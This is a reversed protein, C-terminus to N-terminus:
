KCYTTKIYEKVGEEGVEKEYELKIQVGGNKYRLGNKSFSFKYWVHGMRPRQQRHTFSRSIVVDTINAIGLMEMKDAELQKEDKM